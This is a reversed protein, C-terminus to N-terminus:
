LPAARAHVYLATIIILGATMAFGIVFAIVDAITIKM